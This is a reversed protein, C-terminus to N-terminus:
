SIIVDLTAYGALGASERRVPRSAFRAEPFRAAFRGLVTTLEVKALAMGLCFHIGAGFALGYGAKRSIDFDDAHPCGNSDRNAAGPMVLVTSEAPLDVGGLSVDKAATRQVIQVPSAWRLVEDVVDGVLSPDEVLQQFQDPHSLLAHMANGLSDATTVYGALVLLLVSNCLEADTLQEPDHDRVALYDSILDDRPTVRREAVLEEVYTEFDEAAKDARAKEEETIRPDTLMVLCDSWARFTRWDEPPVGVLAGIVAVTVPYAVLGLYDAPTGDRGQAALEDLARDTEREILPRLLEVKRVTLDRAILRRLRTHSPPNIFPLLSYKHAEGRSRRWGPQTEDMREADIVPFDDANHLVQRSEDAGIVFWKGIAPDHIVQGALRMKRFSLFPDNTQTM